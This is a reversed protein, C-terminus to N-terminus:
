KFQKGKQAKQIKKLLDMLEKVKDPNENYLNHDEHIDTDLNYLQGIPGGTQPKVDVPVTFGGSGLKTILKWPGKRIDLTGKSSINVIAEQDAITTAKGTLIPLISYSDETEFKESHNGILDACTSMFNALTTTVGTVTGAQVKGPYRVILPVRHGGEFADGKM